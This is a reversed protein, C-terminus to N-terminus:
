AGEAPKNPTNDELPKEEKPEEPKVAPEVPAKSEGTEPTQPQENPAAKSEAEQKVVPEEQPVEPAKNNELRQAKDAAAKQAQKEQDQIEQCTMAPFFELNEEPFIKTSARAYRSNELNNKIGGKPMGTLNVQTTQGGIVYFERDFSLRFNYSPGGSIWKKEAFLLTVNLIHKGERLPADFVLNGSQTQDHLEDVLIPLGDLRVSKKLLRHTSQDETVYEIKVRGQKLVEDMSVMAAGPLFNPRVSRNFRVAPGRYWNVFTSHKEFGQIEIDLRYGNKAVFAQTEVIHEVRNVKFRQLLDNKLRTYKAKVLLQHCGPPVPGFFVERARPLGQNRKGGKAILKGDVYIETGDLRYDLGPASNVMSVSLYASQDFVKNEIAMEQALRADLIGLEKEQEDQRAKLASIKAEILQDVSPLAPRRAPRDQSGEKVNSPAAAEDSEELASDAKIKKTKKEAADLAEFSIAADQEAWARKSFGFLGPMVVIALVVARLARELAKLRKVVM